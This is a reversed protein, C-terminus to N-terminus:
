TEARFWCQGHEKLCDRIEIGLGYDAFESLFYNTQPVTMGLTSALDDPSYMANEEFFARLKTLHDGLNNEIVELESEVKELDSMKFDYILCGDDFDSKEPDDSDRYRGIVGFRDAASSSQVAFWFKGDIDGNYYRGM